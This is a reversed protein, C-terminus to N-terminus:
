QRNKIGGHLSQGFNQLGPAVRMNIIRYLEQHFDLNLHQGVKGIYQIRNEPNLKLGVM